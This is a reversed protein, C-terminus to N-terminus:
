PSFWCRPRVGSTSGNATSCTGVNPDSNSLEIKQDHVCIAGAYYTDLRCQTAPHSDDTDSVQSPDPTSFQPPKTEERLAQFLQAGVMGATGERMCLNEEEQTNYLEECKQMLTPDIQNNKVFEANDADNFALRMCRLSSFYDAEGENSAWAGGFGSVKPAGGLHHGLEHCAVMMFGDATMIPHRALGGYMNITWTSGWEEASANVTGNNWQRSIELNGGHAQIIPGYIEQLKDLVGDFQAKTIGGVQNIQIPINMDNEPVFGNCLVHTQPVPGTFFLAGALTLGSLWSHTM